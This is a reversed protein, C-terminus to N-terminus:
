RTKQFLALKNSIDCSHVVMKTHHLTLFFFVFSSTPYFLCVRKEEGLNWDGDLQLRRTMTFKNKNLNYTTLLRDKGIKGVKEYMQLIMLLIGQYLHRMNTQKRYSLAIKASIWKWTATNWWKIRTKLIQRPNATM